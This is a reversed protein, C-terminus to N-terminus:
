FPLDDDDLIKSEQKPELLDTISALEINDTSTIGNLKSILGTAQYKDLWLLTTNFREKLYEDLREKFGPIMVYKDLNKWLTKIFNRQKDSADWKKVEGTPLLHSIDDNDRRAPAVEVEVKVWFVEQIKQYCKMTYEVDSECYKVIKEVRSDTGLKEDAPRDSYYVDFVDKASIEWTKPSHGLLTMCLLDLSCSFSDHKWLNMVDVELRERPKTWAVCLKKHPKIGQIIARKWLFPIDFKIINFGGLVCDDHEDLYKFFDEFIKRESIRNSFSKRVWGVSTSICVVRAFEPYLGSNKYFSEEENLGPFKNDRCKESRLKSKNYSLYNSVEAVTEIDFRLIKKQM